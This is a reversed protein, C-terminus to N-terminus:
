DSFYEVRVPAPSKESQFEAQKLYISGEDIDFDHVLHIRISDARDEALDLLLDPSTQWTRLAQQWAADFALTDIDDGSDELGLTANLDAHHEKFYRAFQHKLLHGSLQIHESTAVPKGALRMEHLYDEKLELRLADDALAIGDTSPNANPTIEIVGGEQAKYVEVVPSLKSVWKPDVERQGPTFPISQEEHTKPILDQVLTAPTTFVKGFFQVIAQAYLTGLDYSPNELDGYIPLDIDLNGHNDTLMWLALDVLLHHADEIKEGLTLRDIFARNDIQVESQNIQYHLDMNLKGRAVRYGSFRGAYQPFSTLNLGTFALLLNTHDQHDMPELDGSLRVPSNRNIKGSLSIDAKADSRSSLGRLTGNLDRVSTSLQPKLGLDSYDVRSDHFRVLGIAAHPPEHNPSPAFHMAKIELPVNAGDDKNFLDVVNLHHDAKLVLHVYAADFDLVRTYFRKPHSSIAVDDLSLRKVCLINRGSVPDRTELEDIHGDGEFEFHHQDGPIIRLEGTFNAYGRKLTLRSLANWYPALLPLRFRNLDIRLAGSLPTRALRGQIAVSGRTGIRAHAHIDTDDNAQNDLDDAAIDLERLTFQTPPTTGLDTLNAESQKLSIEGIEYTWHKQATKLNGRAPQRDAGLSLGKVDFHNDPHIVWQMSAGGIDVKSASWHSRSANTLYHHLHIESIRLLPKGAGDPEIIEGNRGSLRSVELKKTLTEFHVDEADIQKMSVSELRSQDLQAHHIEIHNQPRSWTVQDLRGGQTSFKQTHSRGFTLRDVSLVDDVLHMQIKEARLDSLVGYGGSIESSEGSEAQIIKANPDFSLTKIDLLSANVRPGKIGHIVLSDLRFVNDSTRPHLGKATMEAISTMAHTLGAIRIPDTDHSKATTESDYGPVTIRNIHLSAGSVDLVEVAECRYRHIHPEGMFHIGSLLGMSIEANPENRKIMRLNTVKFHDLSFTSPVTQGPQFVLNVHGKMTGALPMLNMSPPLLNKWDGLQAAELDLSLELNSSAAARNLQLAYAGGSAHRWEFNMAVQGATSGREFHGKIDRIDAEVLATENEKMVSVAGDKILVKRPLPAQAHPTTEPPLRLAALRYSGDTGQTLRIFPATLDIRYRPVWLSADSQGEYIVEVTKASLVPGLADSLQVQHLTLAHRLPDFHWGEIQTSVGMRAAIWERVTRESEKAYYPAKLLFALFGLLLVGWFFKRPYSTM